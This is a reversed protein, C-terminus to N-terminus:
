NFYKHTLILKSNIVRSEKKKECRSEKKKADVKKKKKADVKKKEKNEKEKEVELQQLKMTEDLLFLLIKEETPSRKLIRINSLLQNEFETRSFLM